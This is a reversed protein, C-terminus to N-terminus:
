KPLEFKALWDPGFQNRVQQLLPSHRGHLRAAARLWDANLKAKWNKGNEQAYAIVAVLQEASPQKPNPTGKPHIGLAECADIYASGLDIWDEDAAPVWRGDVQVLGGTFDICNVFDMLAKVMKPIAQPDTHIKSAAKKAAM